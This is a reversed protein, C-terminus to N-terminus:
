PIGWKSGPPVFGALRVRELLATLSAPAWSVGGRPPRHGLRVLEVGMEALTIGPRGGLLGAIADCARQRAEVGKRPKRRPAKGVIVADVLGETVLFQVTSVLRGETFRRNGAPLVGNVAVTVEPWATQPRLHRVVPMWAEMEATLRTLTTARRSAALKGLVVPDRARLGPNGGVRGRARAAKVGVVTRERILSREFEAVAGLMQLVLVGSPGSTDIPDALSKFHAGRVRLSEVVDLLHSLSRALRDIRAVMLTDGRKVRALAAALQPRSREGGSAHEEFIEGCGATRLADLQPGLNQDDTSVRAYGILAM